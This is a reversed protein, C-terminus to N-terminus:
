LAALKQSLRGLFEHINIGSKNLALAIDEILVKAGSSGHFELVVSGERLETLPLDPGREGVVGPQETSPELTVAPIEGVTAQDSIVEGLGFRIIKYKAM